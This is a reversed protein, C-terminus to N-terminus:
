VRMQRDGGWAARCARSPAPSSPRIWGGYFGGPQPRVHEGDVACMDLPGAYFAVYDRLIAFAPTPDAYSWAIDGLLQGGMDLHCYRAEGKWECFSRRPAEHHVM